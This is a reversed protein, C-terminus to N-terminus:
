ISEQSEQSENTSKAVENNQELIEVDNKEFFIRYYYGFAFSLATLQNFNITEITDTVKLYDTIAKAMTVFDDKEQRMVEKALIDFLQRSNVEISPSDKTNIRYKTM